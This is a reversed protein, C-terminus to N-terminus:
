CDRSCGPLCSSAGASHWLSRDSMREMWRAPSALPTYGLKAYVGHADLTALMWRRTSTIEPHADAAANMRQFVGKGRYPELVFVDCMYAFTAGDSVIRLFGIQSESGDENELLASVVLSREVARLLVDRRIGECWYSTSLFGYVVEFDIDAHAYSTRIRLGGMDGGGIEFLSVSGVWGVVGV